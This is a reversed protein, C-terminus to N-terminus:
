ALICTCVKPAMSVLCGVFLAVIIGQPRTLTVLVALLSVALTASFKPGARMSYAVSIAALSLFLFLSETYTMSFVFSWPLAAMLWVSRTSISTDGWMQQTLRYLLVLAIFFFLHSLVVGVIHYGGGLTSVGLMNGTMNILFPYLPWFQYNQQVTVDPSLSYGDSAIQAYWNADFIASLPSLPAEGIFGYKRAIGSDLIFQLYCAVVLILVRSVLFPLTVYKAINLFSPLMIYPQDAHITLKHLLRRREYYKPLDLVRPPKDDDWLLLRPSLVKPQILRDLL